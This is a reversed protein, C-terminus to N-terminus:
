DAEGMGGLGAATLISTLGPPLHTCCLPVAARNSPASQASRRAPLGIGVGGAAKRKGATRVELGEVKGVGNNHPKPALQNIAGHVMGDFQLM